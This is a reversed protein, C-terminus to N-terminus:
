EAEAPIRLGAATVTVLRDVAAASPLEAAAALAHLCYAALEDPPVDDRLEGDRAAETILESLLERLRNRAHTLQEDPHLASVLDRDHGGARRTGHAYSRLVANLRAVATGSAARARLLEALHEEVRSAHWTRLITEVDPFYKYLTARGIGAREAIQSMTVARVGQELVLAAASNVIADRVQARHAEVTENWLKPM